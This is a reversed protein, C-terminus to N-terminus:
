DSTGVRRYAAGEDDAFRLEWEPSAALFPRLQDDSAAIAVLSVDWGDLISAWDARGAKVHLYDAWTDADFLEIRTDVMVPLEPLAQEFWSGWRQEAYLREGPTAERRLTETVGRPADAVVGEPGYLPDAPKWVPLFLLVLITALGAMVTYGAGRPADVSADGLRRGRLRLGSVLLAALPAAGLAWWIVNRSAMLGLVVLGGLWALQLWSLVRGRVLLLLVMLGVSVFFFIGSPDQLTPAQWETVLSRILPDSTLQVVYRWMELGWPNLLTVIVSVIGVAVTVVAARRRAVIDELAALGIALWGMFFSGHTNAWALMVLPVLWLLLPHKRRWGLLALVAAFALVGFLQSRLALNPAAVVFAALTVLSSVVRNSGAARCTAFVLGFALGILVARLLLLGLWGTMDFGVAFIGSALWQQNLWPEGFATFTFPDSRPIAGTELLRRGTAIHYSIDTTLVPALLSAAAPLLVALFAFLGGRSIAWRPAAAPPPDTTAPAVSSPQAMM